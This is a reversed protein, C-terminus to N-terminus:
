DAIPIIQNDAEQALLARKREIGWRYGGLGGGSEVVRHCPIVLAAPNTACAQAVARAARPNGIATAVEGYARTEGYPIARLAEWVRRQFATAQVDLPLALSHQQGSLYRLVAQVAEGLRSDDRQFTAAPLENHLAKELSEASDGLSVACVGRETAAVLVHGFPRECQVVTYYVTMGAGGKRYIGPTMGLPAGEYLARSSGYGAEYQAATVSDGSRLETKLRATRRTEVYARPTVGVIQKFVRGLHAPSVHFQKGLKALTISEGTHTELYHCVDQVLTTQADTPADPECRRCARFGANEAAEADNFFVVHERHPHRAPCSPRCYIGTSSVATVFKGDASRDRSLVAQWRQDDNMPNM